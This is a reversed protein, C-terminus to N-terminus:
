LGLFGSVFDQMDANLRRIEKHKPITSKGANRYLIGLEENKAQISKFVIQLIQELGETMDMFQHKYLKDVEPTYQRLLAKLANQRLFVRCGDYKYKDHLAPIYESQLVKNFEMSALTVYFSLTVQLIDENTANDNQLINLITLWAVRDCSLEELFAEDSGDAVEGVYDPTYPTNKLNAEIQKRLEAKLNEPLMQPVNADIHKKLLLDKLIEDVSFKSRLHEMNSKIDRLLERTQVLEAKRSAPKESFIIHAAEHNLLFYIQLPVLQLFDNNELKASMASKLEQKFNDLCIQAYTYNDQDMFSQFLVYEVIAGGTNIKNAMALNYLALVVEVKENFRITNSGKEKKVLNEPFLMAGYMEDIIVEVGNCYSLSRKLTECFSDYLKKM